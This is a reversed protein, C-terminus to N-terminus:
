AAPQSRPLVVVYRDRRRVRWIRSSAIDGMAHAHTARAPGNRSNHAPHFAPRNGAVIPLPRAASRDFKRDGDCRLAPRTRPKRGGHASQPRRDRRDQLRSIARHRVSGDAARVHVAACQCRFVHLLVRGALAAMGAARADAAHGRRDSGSISSNMRNIAASNSWSGSVSWALSPPFGRWPRSNIRGSLEQTAPLAIALLM